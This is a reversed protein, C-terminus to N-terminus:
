RFQAASVNVGTAARLGVGDTESSARWGRPRYRAVREPARWLTHSRSRAVGHTGGVPNSVSDARDQFASPLRMARAAESLPPVARTPTNSNGDPFTTRSLFHTPGTLTTRKLGSPRVSAIPPCTTCTQFESSSWSV